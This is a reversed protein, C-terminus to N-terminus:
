APGDLGFANGWPDLLQCIKQALDLPRVWIGLRRASALRGGTTAAGVRAAAVAVCHHGFTGAGAGLMTGRANGGFALVVLHRTFGALLM